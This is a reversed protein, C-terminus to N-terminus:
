ATLLKEKEIGKGRNRTLGVAGPLRLPVYHIGPYPAERLTHTGPELLRYPRRQGCGLCTRHAVTEGPLRMPWTEREHGCSALLRLIFNFAAARM